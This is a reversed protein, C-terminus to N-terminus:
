VSTMVEVKIVDDNGEGYIIDALITDDSEQLQYYHGQICM